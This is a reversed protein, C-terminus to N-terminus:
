KKHAKHGNASCFVGLQKDNSAHLLNHAGQLWHSRGELFEVVSFAHEGGLTAVRADTRLLWVAHSREMISGVEWPSTSPDAHRRKAESRLTKQMEAMEREFNRTSHIDKMWDKADELSESCLARALHCGNYFSHYGCADNNTQPVVKLLYYFAGGNRADRKVKREKKKRDVAGCLLPSCRGSTEM